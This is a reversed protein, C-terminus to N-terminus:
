DAAHVVVAPLGNAQKLPILHYQVALGVTAAYREVTSVKADDAATELRAITSQSTQMAAAIETQSRRAAQRQAALNRLLERRRQAAQVLQPFAPNRKTREGVMEDLFDPESM